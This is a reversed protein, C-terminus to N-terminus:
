RGFPYTKYTLSEVLEDPSWREVTFRWNAAVFDWEARYGPFTKDLALVLTSGVPQQDLWLKSATVQAENVYDTQNAPIADFHATTYFDSFPYWHAVVDEAYVGVPQVRPLLTFDPPVQDFNSLRAHREGSDSTAVHVDFTQQDDAGLQEPPLFVPADISQASWDFVTGNRTVLTTVAVPPLEGAEAPVSFSKTFMLTGTGGIQVTGVSGSDLLERDHDILVMHDSSAFLDHLGPAVSLSFGLHDGLTTFMRDTGLAVSGTSDLTGTVTIMPGTSLAPETCDPARWSAITVNADAYTGFLEGIVAARNSHICVLVLEFDGDVDITYSTTTANPEGAFSTWGGGNTRGLFLAPRGPVTLPVSLTDTGCGAVLVLLPLARVVALNSRTRFGSM